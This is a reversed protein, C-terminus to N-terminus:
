GRDPRRKRRFRRCDYGQRRSSKAPSNLGAEDARVQDFDEFGFASFCPSEAAERPLRATLLFVGGFHRPKRFDTTGVSVASRVLDSLWKRRMRSIIQAIRRVRPGLTIRSRAPKLRSRPAPSVRVNPSTPKRPKPHKSWVATVKHRRRRLMQSRPRQRIPAKAARVSKANPVIAIANRRVNATKANKSSAAPTRNKRPQAWCGCIISPTSNFTKPLLATM